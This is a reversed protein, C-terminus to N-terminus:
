AETHRAVTLIRRRENFDDRGKGEGGRYKVRRAKLGRAQRACSSVQCGAVDQPKRGKWSV